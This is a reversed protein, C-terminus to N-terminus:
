PAVLRMPLPCHPEHDHAAASHARLRLRLAPPTADSPTRAAFCPGHHQACAAAAPAARPGGRRGVKALLSDYYRSVVNGTTVAGDMRIGPGGPM